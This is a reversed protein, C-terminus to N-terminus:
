SPLEDAIDVNSGEIAGGIVSGRGGTGALGVVTDCYGCRASIITAISILSDPNRISALTLRAVGTGIRELISRTSRRRRWPLCEGTSSRTLWRLFRLLASPQAFQSLRGVGVLPLGGSVTQWPSWNVPQPSQSGQEFHTSTTSLGTTANYGTGTVSQLGREPQVHFGVPGTSRNGHHRITSCDFANWTNVTAQKTFTASIVHANGRSDYVNSPCPSLAAWRASADLNLSM